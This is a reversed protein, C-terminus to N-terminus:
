AQRPHFDILRGLFKFVSEIFFKLDNISRISSIKKYIFQPTIFSAYISQTLKVIEQDTMDTKLVPLDMDYRDWDKTLLWDNKDAQDFLKTGPYPIVITAQLSDVLGKKSLNKTFDITKKADAKTEWPYGIMCTVHPELHTRQKKNIKQIMELEDEITDIRTGKNLKKITKQNASELGYLLFRFNARAMLTYDKKTLTGFRMNCGMVVKQHYGRDIMGRCFQHLWDGVMFTGTDDFVEKVGLDILHGIEDLFNDVSRFSFQPFISTWSCFTCGGERRWWCDRGAMTYTGPKYKFNGNNYAYQQWRSLDRDILPLKDLNFKAEFKGSNKLKKGQRYWVGGKLTKNNEIHDVLNSLTLDFHGGTLIFDVESNEFSEEPFATVHDGCLVITLQPFEKKLQNITHWHQKVVPTKTEILILDPSCEKLKDVWTQYDWKEAIADLWTVQHGQSQLLTAASAPIVPYVITGAKTWQFQRNQSLLATGLKSKLPPFVIAVKM